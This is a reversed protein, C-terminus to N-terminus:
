LRSKKREKIFFFVTVQFLILGAACGLTDFIFDVVDATRSIFFTGQLVETLGGYFTGFLFASLIFYKKLFSISHQAAFGRALLISFFLFLLIHVIKDLNPINLFSTDPLDNEPLGLLILIIM